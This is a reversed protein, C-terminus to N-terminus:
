VVVLVLALQTPEAIVIEHSQDITRVQAFENGLSIAHSQLAAARDRLSRSDFLRPQFPSPTHSGTEINRVISLERVRRAEVAAQYTSIITNRRVKAVALARMEM